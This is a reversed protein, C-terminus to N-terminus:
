GCWTGGGFTDRFCTFVAAFLFSLLGCVCAHVWESCVFTRVSKRGGRQGTEIIDILGDQATRRVKPRPDVTSSLLLDHLRVLAQKNISRPPVRVTTAKLFASICAVLWKSLRSSARGASAEALEVQAAVKTMQFLVGAIVQWKAAMVSSKVAPLTISLLNFLECLHQGDSAEIATMTAAFCETPSVTATTADETGNRSRVVDEIAAYVMALKEQEPNPKKKRGDPGTSKKHRQINAIRQQFM